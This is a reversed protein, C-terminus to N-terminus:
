RFLDAIRARTRVARKLHEPVPLSKLVRRLRDTSKMRLRILFHTSLYLIPEAVVECGFSMKFQGISYDISDPDLNIGGFDYVKMGQAKYNQIEIWHLLRNVPGIISSISENSRDATGGLLFRARKGPDKMIVHTAIPIGQHKGLYIDHDGLLCQWEDPGIEPRYGLKHISQNLLCRATETDDNVLIELELKKGKEIKRKCQSSHFKKWIDAESQSLDILPTQFSRQWGLFPNVQEALTVPCQWLIVVPTEALAEVVQAVSEPWWMTTAKFGHYNSPYVQM